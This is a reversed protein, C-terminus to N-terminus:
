FDIGSHFNGCSNFVKRQAIEKNGDFISPCLRALECREAYSLHTLDATGKSEIYDTVVDLLKKEM